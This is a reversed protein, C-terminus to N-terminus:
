QLFIGIDRVNFQVGKAPRSGGSRGGEGGGGTVGVERERGSVLYILHQRIGDEIRRLKLFQTAKIYLVFVCQLEPSVFDDIMMRGKSTVLVIHTESFNIQHKPSSFCKLILRRASGEQLGQLPMKSAM